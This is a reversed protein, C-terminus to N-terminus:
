PNLQELPVIDMYQWRDDLISVYLEDNLFPFCTGYGNVDIVEKEILQGNEDFLAEVFANDQWGWLRFHSSDENAVHGITIAPDVGEMRSRSLEKGNEDLTILWLEVPEVLSMAILSVSGYSNSVCKKLLWEAPDGHQYEWVREGDASICLQSIHAQGDSDWYHAELYLKGDLVEVPEVYMRDKIGYLPWSKQKGNWDCITLTFSTGGSHKQLYAYGEDFMSAESVDSPLKQVQKPDGSTSFSEVYYEKQANHYLFVLTDANVRECYRRGVSRHTFCGTWIPQGSRFCYVFRIEKEGTGSTPSIVQVISGDNFFWLDSKNELRIRDEACALSATFVFFLLILATLIRKRAMRTM